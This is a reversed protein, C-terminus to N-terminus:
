AGSVDFSMPSSRLLARFLDREEREAQEDILPALLNERAFNRGLFIVFRPPSQPEFILPDRRRHRSGFFIEVRARLIMDGGFDGVRSIKRASM